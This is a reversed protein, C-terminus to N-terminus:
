FSVSSKCIGEACRTGAGCPDAGCDTCTQELQALLAAFGAADVDKNVTVLGCVNAPYCLSDFVQCDGDVECQLNAQVIAQAEATLDECTPAGTTGSTSTETTGSTVTSTPADTTGPDTGTGTGPGDGSSGEDSTGDKPGCAAGHLTAAAFLGIWTSRRM